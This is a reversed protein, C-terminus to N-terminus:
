RPGVKNLIDGFVGGNSKPTYVKNLLDRSSNSIIANTGRQSMANGGAEINMTLDVIRPVQANVTTWATRFASPNNGLYYDAENAKANNSGILNCVNSWQRASADATNITTDAATKGARGLISDRPIVQNLIRRGTGTVQNQASNVANPNAVPSPHGGNAIQAACKADYNILVSYKAKSQEDLLAKFNPNIGAPIQAPASAQPGVPTVTREVPTIVSGGSVANRVSNIAQNIPSGGYQPINGCAAATCALGIATSVKAARLALSESM